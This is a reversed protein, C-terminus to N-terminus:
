REVEPGHAQQEMMSAAERLWEAVIAVVWGSLQGETTRIGNREAVDAIARLVRGDRDWLLRADVADRPEGCESCAHHHTGEDSAVVRVPATCCITALDAPM